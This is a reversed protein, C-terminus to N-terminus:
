KGSGVLIDGPPQNLHIQLVSVVAADIYDPM